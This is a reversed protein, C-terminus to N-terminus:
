SRKGRKIAAVAATLSAMETVPFPQRWRTAFEGEPLCTQLQRLARWFSLVIAQPTGSHRFVVEVNELDRRQNTFRVANVICTQDDQPTFSLELEHSELLFVVPRSHRGLAVECLASCLSPLTSHIHSFTDSFVVEDSHPELKLTLLGDACCIRGRRGRRGLAGSSGRAVAVCLV